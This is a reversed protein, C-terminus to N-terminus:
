FGDRGPVNRSGQHLIQPSLKLSSHTSLNWWNHMFGEKRQLNGKCNKLQTEEGAIDVKIEVKQHLRSVLVGRLLAAEIILVEKKKPREWVGKSPKSLSPEQFKHLVNGKLCYRSPIDIKFPIKKGPQLFLKKMQSEQKWWIMKNSKQRHISAAPVKNFSYQAYM